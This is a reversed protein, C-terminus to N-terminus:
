AMAPDPWDASVLDAANLSSYEAQLRSVSARTGVRAKHGERSTATIDMCGIGSVAEIEGVPALTIRPDSRLTPRAPLLGIHSTQGLTVSSTTIIPIGKRM